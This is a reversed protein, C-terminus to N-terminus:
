VRRDADSGRRRLGLGALATLLLLGTWTREGGGATRCGCGGDDTRYNSASNTDGGSGGAGTGSSSTSSSSTSTSSGGGSGTSLPGIYETAVVIQDDWLQQDQESTWNGGVYASYTFENIKLEDTDRFRMGEIHGVLQGDIWMKLEGDHEGVTNAKIMMEFCYWRDAEVAIPPDVLNMHPADGYIGDQEPHYTYFRPHRDFDVYLKCSYKDYGTPIEGAGTADPSKAYVGSMKHQTFDYGPQWKRYWRVYAIDTEAIEPHIEYPDHTGVTQSIELAGSGNFVHAPESTWGYGDVGQSWAMTEAEDNFDLFYLVAPDDALGEDNPYNAALGPGEQALAWSSCLIFPAILAVSRSLRAM